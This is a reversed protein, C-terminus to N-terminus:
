SKLERISKNLRLMESEIAYIDKLTRKWYTGSAQGVETKYRNVISLQRNLEKLAKKAERITIGIKQVSSREPNTKFRHYRGENVHEKLKKRKTKFAKPVMYGPTASTTNMESLEKDIVRRIAKRLVEKKHDENTM